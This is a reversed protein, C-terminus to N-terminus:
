ADPDEDDDPSPTVEPLVPPDYMEGTQEDFFQTTELHEKLAADREAVPRLKM